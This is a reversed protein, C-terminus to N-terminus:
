TLVSIGSSFARPAVSMRSSGIELITGQDVAAPDARETSSMTVRIPPETDPPPLPDPLPQPSPPGPDPIPGPDPMPGPPVPSPDPRPEPHETRM